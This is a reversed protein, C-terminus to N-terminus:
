FVAFITTQITIALVTIIEALFVVSMLKGSRVQMRLRLPAEDPVEPPAAIRYWWGFLRDELPVEQTTFAKM